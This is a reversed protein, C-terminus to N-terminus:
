QRLSQVLGMSQRLCDINEKIYKRFTYGGTRFVRRFAGWVLLLTGNMLIKRLLRYARGSSLLSLTYSQFILHATEDHLMQGCIRRLAKSDTCRSLANYYTIAIMEATVLVTVECRIGGFHRATRFLSDLVSRDSVEIGHYDMYTKLYSSHRNEERIFMEVAKRYEKHGSAVAYDDAAKLFYKGDSGEGKQFARISPSILKKVKEPLPREESFDIKLKKRDNDEFYKIWDGFRFQVMPSKTFIM